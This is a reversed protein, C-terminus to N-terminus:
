WLTDRNGWCRAGSADLTCANWPGLLATGRAGPVAAAPSAAVTPLHACDESCERTHCDDWPQQGKQFSAPRGLVGYRNDGWCMLTGGELTACTDLGSTAVALARAPLRVPTLAVSAATHGDGSAQGLQNAGFCVLSGDPRVACTVSGGAALARAALGPVVRAGRSCPLHAV